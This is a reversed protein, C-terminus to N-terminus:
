KKATKAAAKPPAKKKPAPKRNAELLEDLHEEIEKEIRGRFASFLFGLQAVLDFHDAAVMLEGHVGTRKFQVTDGKAGESVSCEMSFRQEADEAWQLAIKRAKALGLTHERRIRIEPM